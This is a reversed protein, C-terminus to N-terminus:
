ECIRILELSELRGGVPVPIGKQLVPYQYYYSPGSDTPLPIIPLSVEEICGGGSNHHWLRMVTGGGHVAITELKNKCQDISLYQESSIYFANAGTIVNTSRSYDFACIVNELSTSVPNSMKQLLYLRETSDNYRFDRLEWYATDAFGQSIYCRFVCNNYVPEYIYIVTGRDVIGTGFGIGAYAVVAYYDNPLREIMVPRHPDNYCYYGGGSSYYTASYPSSTWLSNSASAPLLYPTSYHGNSGNKHGIVVVYNDTVTIDDYYYVAYQEQAVDYNWGMYDRRMDVMCRTQRTEDPTVYESKGVMFIHVGDSLHYFDLKTLDLIREQSTYWGGMGITYMGTGSSFLTSIKFFGFLPASADNGCFFVEDEDIEFDHVGLYKCEFSVCTM